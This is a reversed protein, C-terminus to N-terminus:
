LRKQYRYFTNGSSHNVHFNVGVHIDRSDELLTEVIQNPTISL